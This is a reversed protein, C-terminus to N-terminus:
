TARGTANCAKCPRYATGRDVSSRAWETGHGSCRWCKGTSLEWQREFARLQASSVVLTRETKPDRKAHNPRGKNKGSIKSPTVAGHILFSSPAVCESRYWAWGDPLGPLLQKALENFPDPHEFRAPKEAETSALLSQQNM